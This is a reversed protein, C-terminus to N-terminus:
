WLYKKIVKGIYQNYGIEYSPNWNQNKRIKNFNDTFMEVYEHAKRFKSLCVTNHGDICGIGKIYVAVHSVGFRNKLDINIEDCNGLIIEHAINLKNLYTSFIHAFHGCGGWNLYEIKKLDNQINKVALRLSNKNNISM